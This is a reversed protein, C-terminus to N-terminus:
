LYNYAHKKLHVSLTSKTFKKSTVKFQQLKREIPGNQMIKQANFLERRFTKLFIVVLHTRNRSLEEFELWSPPISLMTNFPPRPSGLISIGWNKGVNAVTTYEIDRYKVSLGACDVTSMLLKEFFTVRLDLEKEVALVIREFVCSKGSNGLNPLFNVEWYM